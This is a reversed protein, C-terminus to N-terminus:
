LRVHQPQKVMQRGYRMAVTHFLQQLFAKPLLLTRGLTIRFINQEHSGERFVYPMGPALVQLAIFCRGERVCSGSCPPQHPTMVGWPGAAVLRSTILGEVM